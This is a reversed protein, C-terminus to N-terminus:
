TPEPIREGDPIHHRRGGLVLVPRGGDDGLYPGLQQLALRGFQAPSPEAGSAVTSATM